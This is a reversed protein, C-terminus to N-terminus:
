DVADSLINIREYFCSQHRGLISRRSTEEMCQAPIQAHPPVNLDIDNPDKHSKEM